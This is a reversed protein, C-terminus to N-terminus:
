LHDNDFRLVHINWEQAISLDVAAGGVQASAPRMVIDLARLVSWSLKPLAGAFIHILTLSLSSRQKRAEEHLVTGICTFRENNESAYRCM